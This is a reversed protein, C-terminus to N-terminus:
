THMNFYIFTLKLKVKFLVMSTEDYLLPTQTGNNKLFPHLQHYLYPHYMTTKLINTILHKDIDM